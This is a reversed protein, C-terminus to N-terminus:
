YDYDLSILIAVKDAADGGKVSAVGLCSRHFLQEFPHFLNDLEAELDM